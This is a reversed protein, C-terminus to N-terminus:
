QLGAKPTRNTVVSYPGASEQAIRRAHEVIDDATGEEFYLVVQQKKARRGVAHLGYKGLLKQSVLQKAEDLSPM